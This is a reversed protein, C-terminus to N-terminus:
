SPDGTSVLRRHDISSFADVVAPDYWTGRCRKIEAVASDVDTAARYPSDHTLVDFSDAIAVLRGALPIAQGALGAPYGRGDWREHHTRAITEAADLLSSGSGRLIRSGVTTHTKVTEMELPSLPGSKTLLDLPLAVKGVDHLPAALRLERQEDDGLGLM